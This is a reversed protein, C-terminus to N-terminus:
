RVMFMIKSEMHKGSTMRYVYTGTAVHRGFDDTGDWLVEHYMVPLKRDPTILRRVLRGNLTFIQLSVAAEVPLAFRIKTAYRFPNPYNIGLAFKTPFVYRPM